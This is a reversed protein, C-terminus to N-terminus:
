LGCTPWSFKLGAKKLMSRMLTVDLDVTLSYGAPAMKLFYYFMQRRPWARLDIPTFNTTIDGRIGDSLVARTPQLVM